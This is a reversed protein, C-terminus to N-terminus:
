WLGHYNYNYVLHVSDFPPRVNYGGPNKVHRVHGTALSNTSKESKGVFYPPIIPRIYPPISDYIITNKLINTYIYIYINNMTNKLINTYTYYTYIYIAM